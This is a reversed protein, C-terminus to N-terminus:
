PWLTKGARAPILRAPLVHQLAHKRKGRGRPSSGYAVRRLGDLGVNEGGARPHAQRPELREKVPETKGARAPILGRDARRVRLCQRKGRGRPSSGVEERIRRAQVLNEGGARPHAALTWDVLVRKVTKGARAPILGGLQEQVGLLLRKGRGRPSSGPRSRNFRTPANNEGGARPHATRWRKAARSSTTKGARAPILGAEARVRASGFRKGRGRPSSGSDREDWMAQMANEGGARPHARLGSAADHSTLTKGARAPILRERRRVRTDRIPKGRGRPSSGNGRRWTIQPVVNEGGARPHAPRRCSGGSVM